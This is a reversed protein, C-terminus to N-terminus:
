LPISFSIGPPTLLHRLRARRIANKRHRDPHHLEDALDRPFDQQRRISDPSAHVIPNPNPNPIKIHADEIDYRKKTIKPLIWPSFIITFHLSQIHRTRKVGGDIESFCRSKQALM